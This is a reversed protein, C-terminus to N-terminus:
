SNLKIYLAPRVGMRGDGYGDYYTGINDGKFPVFAVNYGHDDLSRLWWEGTRDYTNLYDARDNYLDPFQNIYAQRLRDTALHSYRAIRDEDSSFYRKAEDISLLFIRDDTDIEGGIAIASGNNTLHTTLIQSKEISNFGDYFDKNLFQRLTCDEWTIGQSEEEHFKRVDIIDQTILLAKDGEESLVRWSLGGFEILKQGQQIQVVIEEPKSFHLGYFGQESQVNYLGYGDMISPVGEYFFVHMSELFADPLDSTSRGPLYLRYEGMDSIGPTDDVTIIKLGDIIIDEGATGDAQLNLLQMSYEYESIQQVDGFKGHFNNEYLSGNPFGEGINGMELDQYQGTFSGDENVIVDTQWDGQGRTSTFSVPMGPLVFSPHIPISSSEPSSSEASALEELINEIESNGETAEIGQQLVSIAKEERGLAIYVQSLGIYADPNNPDNDLIDEYIGAVDRLFMTDNSIKKVGTKLTDIAKDYKELGVYATALGTYGRPNRPELAILQEFYVVAQEYNMELLYKEGLNLLEQTSLSAPTKSCSVLLLLICATIVSCTRKM